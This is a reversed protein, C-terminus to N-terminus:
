VSIEESSRINRAKEAQKALQSAAPYRIESLSLGQPGVVKFASTRKAAQQLKALETPSLKGEGAAMLAGVLARVMNHCFADASVFVLIRGDKERKVTLKKLERITTAGERPKCFAGFDKLGILKKAASNMKEVSLLRPHTLTYRVWKPNPACESDAIAYVYSRGIASFRADFGPKALQVALVSIDTPLLSNIRSPSLPNRGIRKLQADSLDIHCVQHDAHVGADTRGGVRMYFDESSKGLIETLARLLEGQVTRLNPQKAWGAFDTGDYSLDIRFRTLGGSVGAPASM